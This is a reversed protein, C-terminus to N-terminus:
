CSANTSIDWKYWYQRCGPAVFNPVGPSADWPLTFTTPTNTPPQNCGYSNWKGYFYVWSPTTPIALRGRQSSLKVKGSSAGGDYVRTVTYYVRQPSLSVAQASGITVAWENGSDGWATDQYPSPLDSAWYGVVDGGGYWVTRPFYGYATTSNGPGVPPEGPFHPFEVIGSGSGDFLAEPEYTSDGNSSFWALRGYSDWYMWQYIYKSYQDQNVYVQGWSPVFQTDTASSCNITSGDQYPVEARVLVASCSLCLVLILKWLYKM